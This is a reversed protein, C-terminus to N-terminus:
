GLSKNIEAAAECYTRLPEFDFPYGTGLVFHTAGAEVYDRLLEFERKWADTDLGQVLLTREIEAPNRGYRACWNDLVNSKKRFYDLPGFTNWADAYQAVVRLTKREGGGGILIPMGGLPPPNLKRLREKIRVVARELYDIRQGATGFEYGYEAYDKQFWGAGLGLILRGKSLHDVTRAMDALLDPNRYSVCSVMPGISARTTELAMASLLTWCEFHRGAPDGTLPFFHDWLWISDAGAKEAEKWAVRLDEVGCHQPYLSVGVKVRRM